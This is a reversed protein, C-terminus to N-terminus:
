RYRNSTDDLPVCSFHEPQRLGTQEGREALELQIRQESAHGRRRVVFLGREAFGVRWGSPTLTLPCDEPERM